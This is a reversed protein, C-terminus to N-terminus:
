EESLHGRGGDTPYRRPPNYLVEPRAIVRRCAAARGHRPVFSSAAPTRACSGRMGHVHRRERAANRRYHLRGEAVRPVRRGDPQGFRGVPVQQVLAAIQQESLARTMDTDVFGPAICNVTINRSGLERALSRSMGGVGAKAAAYNAQGANGTVGVVSTINVIRG